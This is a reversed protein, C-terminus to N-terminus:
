SKSEVVPQKAPRARVIKAAEQRRKYHTNSQRFGNKGICLQGKGANCYPCHTIIVSVHTKKWLSRSVQVFIVTPNLAYHFHPTM